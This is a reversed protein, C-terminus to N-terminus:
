SSNNVDHTPNEDLCNCPVSSLYSEKWGDGYRDILQRVQEEDIKKGIQRLTNGANPFFYVLKGEYSSPFKGARDVFFYGTAVGTIQVDEVGAGLYNVYLLDSERLVIAISRSYTETPSINGEKYYGFHRISFSGDYDYEFQSISVSVSEETSDIYRSTRILWCGEIWARRFILQRVKQIRFLKSAIQEAGFTGFLLSLAVSLSIGLANDPFILGKIEYSIAVCLTTLLAALGIRFKTSENM